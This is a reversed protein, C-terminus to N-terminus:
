FALSMQSALEDAAAAGNTPHNDNAHGCGNGNTPPATHRDLAAMVQESYRGVLRDFYAATPERRRGAFESLKRSGDAVAAREPDTLKSAINVYGYSAKALTRAQRETFPSVELRGTRLDDAIM